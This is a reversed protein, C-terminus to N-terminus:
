KDEMIDILYLASLNRDDAWREAFRFSTAKNAVIEMFHINIVPSPIKKFKAPTMTAFKFVKVQNKRIGKTSIVEVLKCKSRLSAKRTRKM